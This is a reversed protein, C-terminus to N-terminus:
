RAVVLKGLGVEIWNGGVNVTARFLYVGNALYEGAANETHWDLSSDTTRQSWVRRGSLDFVEVFLGDVEGPGVGEARFSTTHVDTIPNPVNIVRIKEPIEAPMEPRPSAPM